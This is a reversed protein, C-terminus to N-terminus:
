EIVHIRTEDYKDKVKGDEDSAPHGIFIASFPTHTIPASLAKRVVKANHPNPYIACWVAGLGLDTVALLINEISASLDCYNTDHMVLPLTKNEKLCVVIIIPSKFKGFTVGKKINEKVEDNKVIYYEWARRDCASPAAMAAKMIIDLQENSVEEDSFKRISRRNMIAKLTEM